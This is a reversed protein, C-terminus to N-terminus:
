ATEFDFYDFLFIGDATIIDDASLKTDFQIDSLSIPFCNYYHVRFLPNNLASLVTLTADSYVKPGTVRENQISSLRNRENTGTPAAISRFWSHIDQWSKMAEDVLFTMALQNYMMKTGPANVDLGPFNIPASGLQMGPINVSQCFYQVNQLRSFTMIYKTPQLLNTNQPTRTLATMSTNIHGFFLGGSPPREFIV